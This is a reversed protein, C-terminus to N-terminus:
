RHWICLCRAKGGTCTISITYTSSGDTTFDVVDVATYSDGVDIGTLGTANCLTKLTSGDPKLIKVNVATISGSYPFVYVKNCMWATTGNFARTATAATGSTSCKINNIYTSGGCKYDGEFYVYDGASFLTPGKNGGIKGYYTTAAQKTITTKDTTTKTASNSATAKATITNGSLSITNSSITVPNVTISSILKGSSPNVTTSSTGSTVTKTETGLGGQIEDSESNAFTYGTLVKSADATGVPNRFNKWTSGGDLSYQAIGSNNRFRIPLLNSLLSKKKVGNADSMPIYDTDNIESTELDTVSYNDNEIDQGALRVLEGNKQINVSM